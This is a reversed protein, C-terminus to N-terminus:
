THVSSGTFSITKTMWFYNNTGHSVGIDLKLIFNLDIGIDNWECTRRYTMEWWYIWLLIYVKGSSLEREKSDRRKRTKIHIRRLGQDVVLYMCTGYFVIQILYTHLHIRLLEFRWSYIARKGSIKDIMRITYFYTCFFRHMYNSQDGIFILKLKPAM